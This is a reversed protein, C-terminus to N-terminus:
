QIDFSVICNKGFLVKMSDLVNSYPFRLSDDSSVIREFLRNNSLKASENLYVCVRINM